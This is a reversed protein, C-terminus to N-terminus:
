ILLKSYLNYTNEVMTNLSFYKHLHRNGEVGMDNRRNENALLEIIKDVLSDSDGDEILFGTINEIILEKNGGNNTAIVPKSLAMYEMISNSIGEGHITSNTTLVGVTLINVINEIDNQKGLFKIEPIASYEGQLSKKNPGDGVSIFEIDNRKAILKSAAKYFARYDKNDTFSAVMGIVYPKTIGYKSRIIDTNNLNEFRRFDIGNHICIGRNNKVRYSKLGANSNGLICDSFPFTIRCMFNQKSFFKISPPANRIVGNVLKFKNTFKALLTYVAPM